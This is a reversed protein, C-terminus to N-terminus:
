QLCFGSEVSTGIDAVPWAETYEHFHTPVFAVISWCISRTSGRPKTASLQFSSFYARLAPAPLTPGNPAGADRDCCRRRQRQPDDGEPSRRLRAPAAGDEGSLNGDHPLIDWDQRTPTEPGM